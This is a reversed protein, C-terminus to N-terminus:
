KQQKLKKKRESGNYFEYYYTQGNKILIITDSFRHKIISDGAYAFEKFGMGRENYKPYPYKPYPILAYYEQDPINKVRFADGNVPERSVYTLTSNIEASDLTNCEIQWKVENESNQISTSYFIFIAWGGLLIGIITYIMIIERSTAKYEMQSLLISYIIHNFNYAYKLM